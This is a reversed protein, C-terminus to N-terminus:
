SDEWFCTEVFHWYSAHFLGKKSGNLSHQKQTKQILRVVICKFIILSWYMLCIYVKWHVKTTVCTCNGMLGQQALVIPNAPRWSLVDPAVSPSPCSESVIGVVCVWYVASLSPPSLFFCLECCIKLVCLSHDRSYLSTILSTTSYNQFWMCVIARIVIIHLRAHEWSWSHVYIYTYKHIYQPYM